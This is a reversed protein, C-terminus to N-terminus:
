LFHYENYVGGVLKYIFNKDFKENLMQKLIETYARQEESVLTEERLSDELERNIIVLEQYKQHLLNYNTSLEDTGRYSKIPEPKSPSDKRFKESTQPSERRAVNRYERQMQNLEDDKEKLLAKLEQIERNGYEATLTLEFIKFPVTAWIPYSWQFHIIQRM